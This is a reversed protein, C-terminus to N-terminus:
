SSASAESKKLYRMLVFMSGSLIVGIVFMVPLAAAYIRWTQDCIGGSACVGHGFAPQLFISGALLIM